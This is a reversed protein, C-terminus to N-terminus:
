DSLLFDFLAPLPSIGTLLTFIQLGTKVDRLSIGEKNKVLTVTATGDIDLKDEILDVLDEIDYCDAIESRRISINFVQELTPKLTKLQADSIHLESNFSKSMKVLDIPISFTNSIIQKVANKIVKHAEM